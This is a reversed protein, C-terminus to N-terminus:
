PKTEEASDIGVTSEPTGNGSDQIDSGDTDDDDIPIKDDQVVDRRPKYGVRSLLKQLSRYKIRTSSWILQNRITGKKFTDKENRTKIKEQRGTEKIIETSTKRYEEDMVDALLDELSEVAYIFREDHLAQFISIMSIQRFILESMNVPTGSQFGEMLTDQLEKLAEESVYDRPM